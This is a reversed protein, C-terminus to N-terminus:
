LKLRAMGVPDFVHSGHAASNRSIFLWEEDMKVLESNRERPSLLQWERDMTM